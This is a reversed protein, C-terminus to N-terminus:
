LKLFQPFSAKLGKSPPTAPTFTRRPLTDGRYPQPAGHGGTFIGMRLGTPQHPEPICIAGSDGLFTFLLQSDQWARGSGQLRGPLNLPDSSVLSFATGAPWSRPTCPPLSGPFCPALSAPLCSSGQPSRIVTRHEPTLGLSCSEHRSRAALAGAVRLPCTTHRWRETRYSLTM